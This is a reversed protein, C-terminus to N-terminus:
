FCTLFVLNCLFIFYDKVKLAGIMLLGFPLLLLITAWMIPGFNEQFKEDETLPIIKNLKETEDLVFKVGFIYFGLGL